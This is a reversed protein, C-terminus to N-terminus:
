AGIFGVVAAALFFLLVFLVVDLVVAAAVRLITSMWGFGSLQKLPIVILCLSIMSLDSSLPLFQLVIDYLSTMNAIYVMAIFTEAFRLHPIAKAKRFFLYVGLTLLVTIALSFINPFLEQTRNFWEMVHRIGLEFAQASGDVAPEPVNMAGTAVPAGGFLRSKLWATAVSVTTLLFLLKFPPFYARQRGALYDRILYGPRLILDRITRLLSRNGIGWQDLLEQLATKASYRGIRASQGCRPCYNGQYRTGCTACEHEEDALPAVEFPRQQWARFAAYRTQIYKKTM